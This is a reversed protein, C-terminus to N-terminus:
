YLREADLINLLPRGERDRRLNECFLGTIRANERDSTSGSHPSVVVNPLRWLPSEPPLPETAFVDLWAAALRGTGPAVYKLDHLGWNFHIM